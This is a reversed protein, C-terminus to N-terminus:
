VHVGGASTMIQDESSTPPLEASIRGDAMVLVRDGLAKAERLESTIYLIAVGDDALERVLRFVEEKAGVDVGRVPDDLILFRAECCLWRALLVKQQNGGSLNAVPQDVSPTRINLAEVYREGLRREEARDHLPGRGLRRLSALVINQAVTMRPVLGAARDEGVYGVGAAIADQPSRLRVERGFLELKGETAPEIGFLTNALRSRGAGVLGFVTVVEGARLELDFARLRPPRGVGRARLVVEADTATRGAPPEDLTVSQGVMRRALQGEDVGAVELDGVRMGDRLVTVRDCIELVEPLRHSVYIVAVGDGTLDRIVQFLRRSERDSLASTPEDLLLIRVDTSLAKAIEVLQREAMGLTSTRTIPDLDLGVRQLYPRAEEQTRGLDVLGGRRAWRGLLVNEGISMSPVLSLEQYVIGIGRARAEGPSGFGVPEGTLLMRGADPMEAGAIIKMLTSKGAGNQGLLGHVEGADVTLDVGTLAQVGPYSKSVERLELLPM